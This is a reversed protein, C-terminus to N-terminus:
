PNSAEVYAKLEIDETVDIALENNEGDDERRIVKGNVEWRKFVYPKGQVEIKVKVKENCGVKEEAVGESNTKCVSDGISVEIEEVGKGSKEDLVLVRVACERREGGGPQSYLKSLKEVEDEINAIETEVAKLEREVDGRLKEVDTWLRQAGSIDRKKITKRRRVLEEHSSLCKGLRQMINDLLEELEKAKRKVKEDKTEESLIRIEEQLGLVIGTYNLLLQQIEALKQEIDKLIEEVEKVISALVRSSRNFKTSM